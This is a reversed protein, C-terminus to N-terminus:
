LHGYISKEHIWYITGCIKNFNLITFKWWYNDPLGTKLWTSGYYLGSQMLGYISNEMYGM